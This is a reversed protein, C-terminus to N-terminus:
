LDGAERKIRRAISVIKKAVPNDTRPPLTLYDYMVADEVRDILETPKIPTDLYHTEVIPVIYNAVFDDDIQELTVVRYLHHDSTM